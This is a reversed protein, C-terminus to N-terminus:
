GIKKAKKQSEPNDGAEAVPNRADNVKPIGTDVPVLADVDREAVIGIRALNVLIAKLGFGARGPELGAIANLLQVACGVATQGLPRGDEGVAVGAVDEIDVDGDRRTL